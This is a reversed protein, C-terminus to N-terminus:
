RPFAKIENFISRTCLLFVYIDYERLGGLGGYQYDLQSTITSSMLKGDQISDLLCVAAMRNLAILNM